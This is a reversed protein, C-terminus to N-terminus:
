SAAERRVEDAIRTLVERPDFHLRGAQTEARVGGRPITADALFRAAAVEEQVEPRQQLATRVAALDEPHLRVVLDGRSSGHVCDRLCRVVTPTPDVLGKALADGVLENAIALGLEVAIGAVEDLRQGVQAPLGEVVKRAAAALDRLATVAAERRAEREELDLLQQVRTGAAAAPQRRSHVRFGVLPAHLPISTTTTM